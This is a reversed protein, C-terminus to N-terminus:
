QRVVDSKSADEMRDIMGQCYHFPIGILLGVEPQYVM